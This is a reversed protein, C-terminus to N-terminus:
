KKAVVPMKVTVAELARPVQVPAILVSQFVAPLQDPSATGVAVVSTIIGPVAVAGVCGVM